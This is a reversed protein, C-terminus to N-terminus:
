DETLYKDVCDKSVYSTIIDGITKISQIKVNDNESFQTTNIMANYLYVINKENESLKSINGLDNDKHAITEKLKEIKAEYDEKLKEVKVDIGFEIDELVKLMAEESEPAEKSISSRLKEINEFLNRAYDLNLDLVYVRDM